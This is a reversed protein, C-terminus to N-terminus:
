PFVNGDYSEGTTKELWRRVQAAFSQASEGGSYEIEARTLEENVIEVANNRNDTLKRVLQHITSGREGSGQFVWGPKIEVVIRM